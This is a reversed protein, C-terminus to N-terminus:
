HCPASPRSQAHASCLLPSTPPSIPAGHVCQRLCLPGICACLHSVAAFDATPVDTGAAQSSATIQAAITVPDIIPRLVCGIGLLNQVKDATCGGVCSVVLLQPRSLSGAQRVRRGKYRRTDL